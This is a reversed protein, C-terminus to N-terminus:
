DNSGGMVTETGFLAINKLSEAIEALLQLQLMKMEVELQRQWIEKNIRWHEFTKQVEETTIKKDAM